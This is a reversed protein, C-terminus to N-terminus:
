HAFLSAYIRRLTMDEGLSAYLLTSYKATSATANMPLVAQARPRFLVKIGRQQWLAVAAHKRAAKIEGPSGEIILKLAVRGSPPQYTSIEEVRLHVLTKVALGLSVREEKGDCLSIFSVTKASSDGFSHQIPTGVYIVNKSRQYDHLHGSIVLNNTSAWEDGEVSEVAGMKFGRFEQHAFTLFVGRYDVTALAEAFRGPPVYPVFACKTEKNELSFSAVVTHDVVTLREPDWNKLSYFPHEESFFQQNNKLDHNGILLYVPAFTCLTQVFKVARTLPSVHISEHRDLTDGAVVIATVSRRRLLSYLAEAMEETELVNSVKFHPDGIVLIQQM